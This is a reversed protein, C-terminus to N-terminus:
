LILDKYAKYTTPKAQTTVIQHIYKDLIARELLYILQQDATVKCQAALTDFVVFFSDISHKEGQHLYELKDRAKQETTHDRFATVLQEKLEKLTFWTAAPNDLRTEVALKAWLGASGGKMCALIALSRVKDDTFKATHISFYIEISMWWEDFKSATGDFILPEPVLIVKGTDPVTPPTTM